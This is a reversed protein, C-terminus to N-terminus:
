FSEYNSSNRSDFSEGDGNPNLIEANGSKGFSSFDENLTDRVSKPIEDESIPAEDIFYAKTGDEYIKLCYENGNANLFRTLVPQNDKEKEGVNQGCGCFAFTALVTFAVTGLVTNKMRKRVENELHNDGNKNTTFPVVRLSQHM